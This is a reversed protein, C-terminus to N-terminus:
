SFLKVAKKFLTPFGQDQLTKTDVWMHNEPTSQSSAKYGHLTLDFHTFTHKVIMNPGLDTENKLFLPHDREIDTAVWDSSPLGIMGGLMKAEDRREVLIEGKENEVWYFYGHKQPQPKKKDKKPLEAQVGEKYAACHKQIPCHMCEPSKPSCITAGLDMLGQGLDGPRINSGDNYLQAASAKIIPKSKPLPEHINFVRAAVREVNGDIIPTKEGNVIAAIASSTYDGIGPLDMLASKHDPFVGNLDHSIVKACKHLNRARAYYGLGAWERMVNDKEADALDHVEPWLTTFKEFYPIVAAITTQQCMIESLWVHYPNPHLGGRHRWPLDRGEGDYWALIDNQLKNMDISPPM